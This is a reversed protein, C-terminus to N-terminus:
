DDTGPLAAEDQKIEFILGEQAVRLDDPDRRESEKGAPAGQAGESQEEIGEPGAFFKLGHGGAAHREFGPGRRPGFRDDPLIGDILLSGRVCSLSAALVGADPTQIPAFPERRRLGRRPM